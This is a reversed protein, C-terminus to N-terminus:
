NDKIEEAGRVTITTNQRIRDVATQIAEARQEAARAHENALKLEFNLTKISDQSISYYTNYKTKLSDIIEIYQSSGMNLATKRNCSQVSKFLFLVFFAITFWKLNKTFFQQPTAM